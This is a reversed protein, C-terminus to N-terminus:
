LCSRTNLGASSMSLTAFFILGYGDVAKYGDLGGHSLWWWGHVKECGLLGGRGSLRLSLWLNFGNLASYSDSVRYGIVAM